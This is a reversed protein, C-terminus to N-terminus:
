GEQLSDLIELATENGQSASQELWYIAKELNQNEAYYVALLLQANSNGAHAGQLLESVESTIINKNNNKENTTFLANLVFKLLKGTLTLAPHGLVDGPKFNFNADM